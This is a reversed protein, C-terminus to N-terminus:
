QNEDAFYDDLDQDGYDFEDTFYDDMEEEETREQALTDTADSSDTADTIKVNEKAQAEKKESAKGYPYRDYRDDNSGRRDDWRDDNRDEWRDDNRDDNRDDRRDNSRGRNNRSNYDRDDWRSDRDNQRNNREWSGRRDNNWYRNWGDNWRNNYFNTYCGSANCSAGHAACTFGNRRDNEWRRIERYKSYQRRSLISQIEYERDALLNRLVNRKGRRSIRRSRSVGEMKRDYFVLIDKMDRAQRRSLYLEHALFGIRSHSGYDSSTYRPTGQYTHTRVHHGLQAFSDVSIIGLFALLVLKFNKM